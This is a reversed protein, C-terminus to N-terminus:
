DLPTVEVTLGNTSIAFDKSGVLVTVSSNGTLASRSVTIPVSVTNGSCTARGGTIGPNSFYVALNGWTSCGTGPRTVIGRRASGCCRTSRVHEARADTERDSGAPWAFLYPRMVDGKGLFGLPEEQQWSGM